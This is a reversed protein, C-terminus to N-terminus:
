ALEWLMCNGSKNKKICTLLQHGAMDHVALNSASHATSGPGIARYCDSIRFPETQAEIWEVAQEYLYMITRYPVHAATDLHVTCAYCIRGAKHYDPKVHSVSPM